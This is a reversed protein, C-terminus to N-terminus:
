PGIQTRRGPAPFAKLDAAILHAQGRERVGDHEALDAALALASFTELALELDPVVDADVIHRRGGTPRSVPYDDVLRGLDDAAVYGEALDGATLNAEPLFIGHLHFRDDDRLDPLDRASAEDLVRKIQVHDTRIPAQGCGNRRSDGIDLSVLRGLSSSVGKDNM